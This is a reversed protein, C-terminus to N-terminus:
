CLPAVAAISLYSSNTRASDIFSIKTPYPIFVKKAHLLTFGNRMYISIITSLTLLATKVSFLIHSRLGSSDIEISSFPKLASQHSQICVTYGVDGSHMHYMRSHYGCCIRPMGLVCLFYISRKFTM